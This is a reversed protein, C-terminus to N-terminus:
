GSAVSLQKVVLFLRMDNMLFEAAGPLFCAGMGPGLFEQSRLLAGDLGGGTV